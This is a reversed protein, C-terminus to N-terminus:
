TPSHLETVFEQDKYLVSSPPDNLYLINDYVNLQVNHTVEQISESQKMISKLKLFKSFSNSKSELCQEFNLNINGDNLM